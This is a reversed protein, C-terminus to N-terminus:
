YAAAAYHGARSRRYVLLSRQFSLVLEGRQNTADTSVTVIGEDARSRSERLGLVTSRVQLTDGVSAEAGFEINTWGLNASVRGFTRTTAAAVVCLCWTQPVQPHMQGARSAEALDHMEPQIEFARWAHRVAEEAFLSRRPWHAVTEHERLDEFYLGTQEVWAGDTRQRHSAFRDDHAAFAGAPPALPDAAAMWIESVYVLEAVLTGDAKLGRTRLQVPRVGREEALVEIVETEAYLTDGGFVPATMAISDIRRIRRRRGLTKATMGILRQVTITSVVLPRRWSTQVAYAEDYHVMAANISDLAEDINEQQTITIGPRHVFRMGVQLQEAQLGFREHLLGDAARYYNTHM